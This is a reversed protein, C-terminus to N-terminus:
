LVPAMASHGNWGAFSNSVLCINTAILTTALLREPRSLLWEAEAAARSGGEARAKLKERSASILAIESMAFFGEAAFFFALCSYLAGTSM